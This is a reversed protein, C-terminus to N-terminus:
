TAPAVRRKALEALQAVGTPPRLRPAEDDLALVEDFARERRSDSRESGDDIGIPAQRRELSREGVCAALHPDGVG